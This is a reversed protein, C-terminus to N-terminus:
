VTGKMGEPDEGFEKEDKLILFEPDSGQAVLLESMQQETVEEHTQTFVGSADGDTTDYGIDGLSPYDPPEDGCTLITVVVTTKWYRQKDM